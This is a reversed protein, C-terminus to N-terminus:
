LSREKRGKEKKKGVHIIVYRFRLAYSISGFIVSLMEANTHCMLVRFIDNQRARLTRESVSRKYFSVWGAHTHTHIHTGAVFTIKCMNDLRRFDIQM